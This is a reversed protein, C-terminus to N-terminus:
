GYSSLKDLRSILRAYWDSLSDQQYQLERLEALLETDADYPYDSLIRITAEDAPTEMAAVNAAQSDSLPYGSLIDPWADIWSQGPIFYAEGIFLASNNELGVTQRTGDKLVISYYKRSAGSTVPIAPLFDGVCRNIHAVASEIEEPQDLLMFNNFGNGEQTLEIYDVDQAKLDQAWHLTEYDGSVGEPLAAPAPSVSSNLVIPTRYNSHAIYRLCEGDTGEEATATVTEDTCLYVRFSGDSTNFDTYCVSETNSPYFEGFSRGDKLRYGNTSNEFWGAGLQGDGYRVGILLTEGIVHPDFFSITESAFEHVVISQNYEAISGIGDMARTDWTEPELTDSTLVQTDEPAVPDTLLCFAAAICIVVTIVIAWFAPKKYSLVNKVREKVGLEGFALPCATIMNRPMSCNLLATSYAKKEAAGMKRIVKEDCALEIDRCLLIYAVWILPNFWYVSLLLYGLPKWWHDKRKLHAREHALVFNADRSKLDSPLYIRPRVLGLVFPSSIHDCIWVGNGIFISPAVKRHIRLYSELAYLLMLGMGAFWVAALNPLITGTLRTDSTEESVTEAKSIASPMEDPSYAAPAREVATHVTEQVESRLSELTVEEREPLLSFSSEFSFPCILRVAVMSWLACHIAKPAKKLLFRLSIVALVLFSATLSMNVLKLFVATM